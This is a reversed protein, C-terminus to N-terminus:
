ESSEAGPGRAFRLFVGIVAERTKLPPNGGGPCRVIQSPLRKSLYVSVLMFGSPYDLQQVRIQPIFIQELEVHRM